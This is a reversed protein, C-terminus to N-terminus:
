KLARHDDVKGILNGYEMKKVEFDPIAPSGYELFDNPYGWKVIPISLATETARDLEDLIQPELTFDLCALDEKAQQLTRASFIPITTAKHQRLWNLAVQVPPRGIRDAIKVVNAMIERNRTLGKNWVHKNKPDLGAQLRHTQSADLANRNYKGTVMGGSLASWATVAMDESYSMPIQEREASREVLSYEIENAVFRTWGHFEALTNGKSIAWSPWNSVGIYRTKGARVLDDLSRMVEDIPTYSDWIHVYLLDVYDTQLRKLSREISRHLNKRHSGSGNPDDLKGYLDFLTYKSAVVFYDRESKVFEGVLEESMGEQYRNSTDLFNGGAQVYADFIRRSEEKDSGIAGWNTGFTGAGLCLESVRVGTRGLLKYRM